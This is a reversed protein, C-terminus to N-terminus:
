DCSWPSRGDAPAIGACSRERLSKELLDALAMGDSKSFQPVAVDLREDTVVALLKDPSTMLQGADRRHVEIKPVSSGKFGEVLIFDYGNGLFDIVDQLSPPRSAKQVFALRTPSALLVADSGAQALRWSDKGPHDLQFDSGSHKVAAVTYGRRKLEAILKELLTTKGSNSRGVISVVLSM